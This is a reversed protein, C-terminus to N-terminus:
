ESMSPWHGDKDKKVYGEYKLDGKKDYSYIYWSHPQGEWKKTYDFFTHLKGSPYFEKYLIYEGKNFSHIFRVKGESDIWKYEGDLLKIKGVPPESNSFCELKWGKKGARGMPNINVGHDYYSYRFYSANCSDKVRKWATSDLYIIWKGDRKGETDLQNIKEQSFSNIIFALSFFAASLQLRRRNAGRVLRLAPSPTTSLAMWNRHM